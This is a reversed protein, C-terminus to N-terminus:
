LRDNRIKFFREQFEPGVDVFNLGAARDLCALQTDTMSKHGEITLIDQDFESDYRYTVPGVGCDSARKAAVKASVQEAKFPNDEASSDSSILMVAALIPHM